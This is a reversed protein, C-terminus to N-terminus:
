EDKELRALQSELRSIQSSRIENVELLKATSQSYDKLNSSQTVLVTLLEGHNKLLKDNIEAEKNICGVEFELKSV